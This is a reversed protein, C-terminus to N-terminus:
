LLAHRRQQDELAQFLAKINGSGFGEANKRQIVEIFFTPRSQLPKSFIQMLYGKEDHDVLIGLDKIINLEEDVNQFRSGLNLYYSEPITIFNIGREKLTQVTRIINDSLFAIHQVGAGGNHRLYEDIQSTEKGAAPEVLPFKIRNEQDRVVISNMGSYETYVNERHSESFGLVNKYFDAWKNLTGKELSIAIHDIANLGILEVPYANSIPKYFPLFWEEHSRQIFSHITDGFARVSSKIIEKGKDQIISPELVPLAGNKVANHFTSNVDNTLFAIDQVGDGHLAVHEAILTNAELSSTLVLYIDQQQVIFSSRGALGTEPSGYAIIKFGLVSEYFHSAQLANGVYLEVYDINRLNPVNMFM